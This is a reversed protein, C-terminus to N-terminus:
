SRREEIRQSGLESRHSIPLHLIFVAGEGLRSSVSIKGGHLTIIRQCIALGLGTGRDEKTTFYPEFIRPLDEEEIGFGTDAFRIHVTSQGAYTDIALRGGGPMADRANLILNLFVQELQRADGSVLPLDSTLQKVVDIQCHMMEKNVLKLVGTLTNNLDLPRWEGSAPRSFDRLQGALRAISDLANRMPELLELFTIDVDAMSAMYEVYAQLIHLPNNIEHAIGAALEGLAALKEAQVLQAQTERLERTREEVREALVEAMSSVEKHLRAKEIATAAQHAIARMLGMHQSQFHAPAAHDLTLVGFVRNDAMLPVALASKPPNRDDPLSVWRPDQATDFIIIGEQHQVVWGALGETLVQSIAQDAEEPPLDRHLIRPTPTEPAPLLFISGQRAETASISLDLVRSLVWDLDLSAALHDSIAYLTQLLERVRHLQVHLKADEVARGIQAGIDEWLSLDTMEVQFHPPCFLCLAGLVHNQRNKLPTVLRSHQWDVSLSTLCAQNPCDPEFIPMRTELAQDCPCNNPFIRRPAGEPWVGQHAIVELGPHPRERLLVIGAFGPGLTELMTRLALGLVHDLEPSSNVADMVTRFMALDKKYQDASGSQTVSPRNSQESL